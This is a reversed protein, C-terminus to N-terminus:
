LLYRVFPCGYLYSNFLLVCDRLSDLEDEIEELFMLSKIEMIRSIFYSPEVSCQMAFNLCSCHRLTNLSKIMTKMIDNSLVSTDITFSSFFNTIENFVFDKLAEGFEETRYVLLLYAQIHVVFLLAFHLRLFDDHLAERGHTEWDRNLRDCQENYNFRLILFLVTDFKKSPMVFQLESLIKPVEIENTKSNEICTSLAFQMTGILIRGNLMLNLLLMVIHSPDHNLLLQDDKERRENLINIIKNDISNTSSMDTTMIEDSPSVCNILSSCSKTDVVKIVRMHRPSYTRIFTMKTRNDKEDGRVRQCPLNNISAQTRANSPPQPPIMRTPRMHSRWDMISVSNGDKTMVRPMFNVNIPTVIM